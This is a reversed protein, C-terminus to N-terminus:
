ATDRKYDEASKLSDTFDADVGISLTDDDLDLGRTAGGLAKKLAEALDAPIDISAPAPIGLLLSLLLITFLALLM